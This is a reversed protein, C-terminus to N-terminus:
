GRERGASGDAEDNSYASDVYYTFVSLFGSERLATLVMSSNVLELPFKDDIVRYLLALLTSRLYQMPLRLGSEINHQRMLVDIAEVFAPALNKLRWGNEYDATFNKTLPNTSEGDVPLDFAELVVEIEGRAVGFYRHERAFFRGLVQMGKAEAWNAPTNKLEPQGVLLFFPYVGLQELSNFCHILYGYQSAHLNQAEDVIIVLRKSGADKALDVLHTHFRRRLVALDRSFVRSCNSQQMMEQVFERETKKSEIQDPISWHLVSIQYGLVTPLCSVLYTCARTKGNRQQGYVAGGPQDMRIWRAVRKALRDIEPTWVITDSLILGHFEDNKDDEDDTTIM